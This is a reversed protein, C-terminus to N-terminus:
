AFRVKASARRIAAGLLGFGGLMMAWSAPEPVAGAAESYSAVGSYVRITDINGQFWEEYGGFQRGFRATGTGSSGVVGVTGSAPFVLSGDIFLQAGTGPDNTLLFSHTGGNAPFAVGTNQFNDSLRIIGGPEQGIYFHGGEQSVVETYNSQPNHGTYTFFVSFATSNSPIISALEVYDGAGDLHLYGGSVSADGYLTGDVGGVSDVATTAGTGNFEYAHILTAAPATGAMLTAALTAFAVNSKMSCGGFDSRIDFAPLNVHLKRFRLLSHNITACAGMPQRVPSLPGVGAHM